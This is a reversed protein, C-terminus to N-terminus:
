WKVVVVVVRRERGQKEGDSIRCLKSIKTSGGAFSLEALAPIIDIHKRHNLGEDWSLAQCVM